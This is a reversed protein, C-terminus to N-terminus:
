GGIALLRSPTGGLDIKAEVTYDRLSIVWASGDGPNTIMVHRRGPLMAAAHYGAHGVIQNPGVDISAKLKADEFDGDRNPDLEVFLMRDDAQSEKKQGFMVALTEGYRSTMTVPTSVAEGEEVQIALSEVRPQSASADVWCLKTADGKGANFVVDRGVRAFAGTRLPKGESDEGLSLHHVAVSEPGDDLERDVAVWCIGDAPAFFAKGANMTAGHLTGSPCHFSYSKGANSGLGIVDVRGQDDGDRAIWTAYAVSDPDVALTIHGNGGEHFTAAQSTVKADRIRKSSTITFGNKKDNALVFARDYQYVHAPNGQVADIMAHSVRPSQTYRWHSHDGHPEEVVGSEIAVWGSGFSGNETDRVGVVMLGDDATMQVLSQQDQDLDPFGEITLKEISWGASSKKLDGSSLTAASDDQWFVRAVTRGEGLVPSAVAAFLLGVLRIDIM